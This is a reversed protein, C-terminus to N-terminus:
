IPEWEVDKWVALNTEALAFRQAVYAPITVYHSCSLAPQRGPPASPVM